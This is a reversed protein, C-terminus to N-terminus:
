YIIITLKEAERWIHHYIEKVRNKNIRAYTNLRVNLPLFGNLQESIRILEWFFMMRKNNTNQRLGFSIFSKDAIVLLNNLDDNTMNKSIM